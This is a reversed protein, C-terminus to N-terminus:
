IDNQQYQDPCGQYDTQLSPQKGLFIDSQSINREKPVLSFDGLSGMCLTPSHTGGEKRIYAVVSANDTDIMVLSNCLIEQFQKLTLSIAKMELISIHLHYKDPTWVGHCLLGDPELHAVWGSVSADSFITHIPPPPKILVRHPFLDKNNWWNLHFIIQQSLYIKHGLPLIHPEMTLISGDSTTSSTTQRISCVPCSCEIKRASISINSGDGIESVPVLVRQVEQVRDM